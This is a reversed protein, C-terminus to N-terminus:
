WRVPNMRNGVLYGNRSFLTLARRRIRPIEDLTLNSTKAHAVWRMMPRSWHSWYESKKAAALRLPVPGVADVSGLGM